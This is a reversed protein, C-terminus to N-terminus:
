VLRARSNAGRALMEQPVHAPGPEPYAMPALAGEAAPLTAPGRGAVSLVNSAM